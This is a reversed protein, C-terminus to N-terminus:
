SQRRGFLRNKLGAFFNDGSRDSPSQQRQQRGFLKEILVFFLPAFVLV